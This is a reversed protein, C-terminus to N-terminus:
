WSQVTEVNGLRLRLSEIEPTLSVFMGRCSQFRRVMQSTDRLEVEGKCALRVGRGFAQM